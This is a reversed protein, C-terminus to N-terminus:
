SECVSQPVLYVQAVVASLAGGAIFTGLKQYLDIVEPQPV